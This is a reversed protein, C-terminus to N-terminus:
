VFSKNRKHIKVRRVVCRIIPKQEKCGNVNWETKLNSNKDNNPLRIKVVEMLDGLLCKFTQKNAKVPTILSCNPEIALVQKILQKTNPFFEGIHNLPPSKELPHLTVKSCNQTRNFSLLNSFGILKNENFKTRSYKHMSKLVLEKMKMGEIALIKFSSIAARSRKVESSYLFTNSVKPTPSKDSLFCKINSLCFNISRRPKCNTSRQWLM